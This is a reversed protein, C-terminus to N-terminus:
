RRRLKWNTEASCCVGVLEEAGLVLFFWKQGFITHPLGKPM